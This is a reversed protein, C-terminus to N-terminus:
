NLLRTTGLGEDGQEEASDSARKYVNPVEARCLLIETEDVANGKDNLGVVSSTPARASSLSGFTDEWLHYEEASATADGGDVKQPHGRDLCCICMNVLWQRMLFEKISTRYHWIGLWLLYGIMYLLPLFVLIGQIAFASLPLSQIPNIQSYAFLYLSLLNLLTLNTFILLDVYNFINLEKKYPRCLAVLLVLLVCLIQQVTFQQLWTDTLIYCVNIALRFLFYVGAFFRMNDKYCGQFSDLIIKIKLSPYFRRLWSVRNIGAELVRLPYHLLLFPLLGTFVIFVFIAPIYYRIIYTTDTESFQGAFYARSVGVQQWDDGSLPHTGVIYSSALSFNTYSLLLFATFAHTLSSGISFNRPLFRCKTLCRCSFYSRLKVLGIVFIIMLLPFFAVLYDLQLIDLANLHTGLCLPPLFSELFDLNFIGYIFRYTQLFPFTHSSILYVPVQGDANLDFTSSIVQSYLIFANAPGTTLKVNFLIIVLFLIFLPLYVSLIYYMANAATNTDECYVCDYTKSNVAPGYGAECEGCLVGTRHKPGCIYADLDSSSNPLLLFKHNPDSYCFGSFCLSVTLINKHEPSFGMWYTNQLRATFNYENCIVTSGYNGSCVCHGLGSETESLKFGALCNQLEVPLEIHWVRDGTSQLNLEFTSNARGNVRIADGSVHMFTPDVQAISNNGSTAIFVTEDKVDHGFDDIINLPLDFMEGARIKLTGSTNAVISNVDSNILSSNDQNNYTWGHWHFVDSIKGNFLCPLVSTSHIADGGFRAWNGNFHFTANWEEPSSLPDQHHIFCDTYTHMDEREIYRNYIAGGYIKAFNETFYMRTADNVLVRANGLLSIAGGSEGENYVFQVESNSFDVLAGVVALASGKNGDFHIDSRFTVPVKNIYVTGVGASFNGENRENAVFSSNCIEVIPPRGQVTLPHLAIFVGSGSQAKNSEFHCDTICVTLLQDDSTTMQLSPSISLAGGEKAANESFNSRSVEVYNGSKGEDLSDGMTHHGIYLGGGSCGRDWAGVCRNRKVKSDMVVIRNGSARETIVISLGGGGDTAENGVFACGAVKVTNNAASGKLYVALGGGPKWINDDKTSNRIPELGEKNGHFTCTQINYKAPLFLHSTETHLPFNNQFYGDESHCASSEIYLGRGGSESGSFTSHSFTSNIVNITGMSDFFAVGTAGCSNFVSLSTLQINTCTYFHLGVRMLRTQYYFPGFMSNHLTSCNYLTVSEIEIYSTNIFFLGSNDQECRIEVVDETKMNGRIAIEELDTFSATSNLYHTGPYLLYETSHNHYQFAYSLNRCPMSSNNDTLCTPSNTGNEPDVYITHSYEVGSAIILQTTLVFAICKLAM